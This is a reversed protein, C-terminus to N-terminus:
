VSPPLTTSIHAQSLGAHIIIHVRIWLSPCLSQPQPITCARPEPWNYANCATTPEAHVLSAVSQSCETVKQQHHSLDSSYIKIM